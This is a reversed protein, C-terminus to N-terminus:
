RSIDRGVTETTVTVDFPDAISVTLQIQADEEFNLGANPGVTLEGTSPEFDFDAADDQPLLELEFDSTVGEPDVAQLVAVLDGAEADEPLTGSSQVLVPPENVDIM